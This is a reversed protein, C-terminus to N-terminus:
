KETEYDVSFEKIAKRIKQYESSWETKSKSLELEYDKDIIDKIKIMLEEDISLKRIVEGNIIQYLLVGNKGRDIYRNLYINIEIHGKRIERRITMYEADNDSTKAKKNMIVYAADNGVTNDSCIFDKSAGFENLLFKIKDLDPYYEKWKSM